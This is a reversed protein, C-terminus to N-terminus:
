DAASIFKSGHLDGPVLQDVYCWVWAEGPEISRM